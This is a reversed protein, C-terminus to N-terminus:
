TAITVSATFELSTAVTNNEEVAPFLLHKLQLLCAMQSFIAPIFLCNKTIIAIFLTMYRAMAPALAM